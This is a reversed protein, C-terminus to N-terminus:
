GKIIFPLILFFQDFISFELAGLDPGNEYYQYYVPLQDEWVLEQDVQIESRAHDVEIVEAVQNNGVLILDGKTLGYGDSFYWSHEVKIINGSGSSETFTLPSGIDIADSQNLLRFKSFSSSSFKPDGVFSDIEFGSEQQFDEM